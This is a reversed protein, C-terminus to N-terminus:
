ARSWSATITTGQGPQSEVSLHVGVARAREHMIRLGLHHSEVGSPEFGRGDDQVSLTLQDPDCQLCIRAQSARAHKVINNLAEQTIRYMTLKIGEPVDCNGALTKLVPIRTRAPMADALHAILADLPQGTLAAPRLELLLTRMEALAGHNLRHLEDLAREGEQPYRAWIRPM